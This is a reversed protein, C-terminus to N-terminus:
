FEDEEERWRSGVEGCGYAVTTEVFGAEMGGSKKTFQSVDVFCLTAAVM